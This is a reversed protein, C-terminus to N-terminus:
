ETVKLIVPLVFQSKVKIGQKIAPEVKPFNTLRNQLISDIVKIDYSISDTPEQTQFQLTADPNITVKVAITDLEPYLIHITDIGIRAQITETLFQFFCEKQTEVDLITDCSAVSPYQDVQKWNVKQLEEKLLANEDPAKKDFYQCSNLLIIVILVIFKKM